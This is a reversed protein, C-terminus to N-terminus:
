LAGFMCGDQYRVPALISTSADADDYISIIGSTSQMALKCLMKWLCTDVDVSVIQFIFFRYVDGSGSHRYQVLSRYLTLLEIRNENQFEFIENRAHVVRLVARHVHHTSTGSIMQKQYVAWM